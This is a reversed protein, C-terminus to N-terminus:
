DEEKIIFDENRSPRYIRLKKGSSVHKVLVFRVRKKRKEHVIQMYGADLLICGTDLNKWEDNIQARFAIKGGIEVKFSRKSEWGEFRHRAILRVTKKPVTPTPQMISKVEFVWPFPTKKEETEVSVSAERKEGEFIRGTQAVAETVLRYRYKSLPALDTDEYRSQARDLEAIQEWEGDDKKRFLLYRKITCGKNNPSDQWTVTITLGRLTINIEPAELTALEPRVERWNLPVFPRKYAFWEPWKTSQVLENVQEEAEKAFTITLPTWDQASRQEEKKKVAKRLRASELVRQHTDDMAPSIILYLLVILVVAGAAVKEPNARLFEKIQRIDM